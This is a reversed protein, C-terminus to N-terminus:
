SPDLADNSLSHLPAHVGNVLDPKLASEIAIPDTLQTRGDRVSDWGFNASLLDLVQRKYATDLNDLQDGKTELVVVRGTRGGAEVAFIFDPYIKARRWGQLGYQTRAVNRHWWVLAKDGDLHVAVEREANNLEAEYVPAFLSRQLPGGDKGVLQRGTPPETTVVDFPMRWNRGDLRLRFQIRGAEVGQKFHAEARMTQETDLGARLREVILGALAGIREPSFGRQALRVLVKGVIERAVFPNPVIDSIMRVAYAPDFAAAEGGVAVQEAAFHEDTDTLRIRQLQGEVAQADEPVSDAVSKPEFGRWDLASLVDTEYDLDRVEGSDVCLVKPLYIEASKLSPRREIKRAVRAEASTDPAQVQLMLDGLGDAELGNKIADVVQATDAHHTIVYCEDLASVGTKLAGPQRLIRGILQTMASLNSSAALSCLVYAFPCDWGEQLASKTIIARVRNTPSLL